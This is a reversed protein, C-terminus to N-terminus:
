NMVADYQAEVWLVDGMATHREFQDPDVHVARSLNDSKWPLPPVANISALYGVILNEVDILHYHWKPEYGEARMMRALKETDFNPVAGVIHAGMTFKQIRSAAACTGDSNVWHFRSLYDRYFPVPLHQAKRTDHEIFLHLDESTGDANRRRGAFEWVEDDPGLGTTETDIFAIDM